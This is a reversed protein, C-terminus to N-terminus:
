AEEKILGFQVLQDEIWEAAANVSKDRQVLLDLVVSAKVRDKMVCEVSSESHGSPTIDFEARREEQERIAFSLRRHRAPNALAFMLTDVNLAEGAKKLWVLHTLTPAGPKDGKMGHRCSVELVIETSHAMKELADVLGVIAAGRKRIDESRVNARFGGNVLITIVRGPRAIEILQTEVMCEPEGDLYRGIDVAGGCVDFYHTFAPELSPAIKVDINQILADVEAHVEQWGNKALDIAEQFTRTGQWNLRDSTRHTSCGIDRTGEACEVYAAWSGFERVINNGEGVNPPLTATAGTPPEYPASSPSSTRETRRASTSGSIGIYCGMCQAGKVGRTLSVSEGIANRKGCTRCKSSAFKNPFIAM